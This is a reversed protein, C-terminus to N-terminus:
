QFSRSAVLFHLLHNFLPIRRYLLIKKPTNLLRRCNGRSVMVSFKKGAALQQGCTLTRHHAPQFFPRGLKFPRLIHQASPGSLSFRIISDGRDIVSSLTM